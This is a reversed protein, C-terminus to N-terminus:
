PYRGDGSPSAYDSDVWTAIRIRPSASTLRDADAHVKLRYPREASVGVSSAGAASVQVTVGGAGVAPSFLLSDAREPLADVLRAVTVKELGFDAATLRAVAKGGNFMLGPTSTAVDPCLQAIGTGLPVPAPAIARLAIFGAWVLKPTVLLWAMQKPKM